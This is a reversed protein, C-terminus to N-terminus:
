SIRMLSPLESTHEESRLADVEPEGGFGNGVLQAYFTRGEVLGVACDGDFGFTVGKGEFSKQFPAVLPRFPSYHFFYHGDFAFHFVITVKFDDPFRTASRLHQVNDTSLFNAPCVAIYPNLVM